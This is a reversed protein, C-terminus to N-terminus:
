WDWYGQDATQVAVQKPTFAPFDWYNDFSEPMDWYSDNAAVLSAETCCKAPLTLSAQILLRAAEYELIAAIAEVKADTQPMPESEWAWYDANDKEEAESKWTWYDSAQAQEIAAAPTLRVTVDKEVVFSQPQTEIVSIDACDSQGAEAWYDDSDPNVLSESETTSATATTASAILNSVINDSSLVYGSDDKVDCEWDWYNASETSPTAAVPAECQTRQQSELPHTLPLFKPQVTERLGSLESTPLSQLLSSLAKRNPAM